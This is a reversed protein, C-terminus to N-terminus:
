APEEETSRLARGQRYAARSIALLAGGTLTSFLVFALLGGLRDIWEGKMYLYVPLGLLFCALLLACLAFFFYGGARARQREDPRAQIALAVSLACLMIGGPPWALALLAGFSFGVVAILSQRRRADPDWTAPAQEAAGILRQDSGCSACAGHERWCDPHQRALCDRCVHAQAREVAEHCFPCRQTSVQVDHLEATPRPRVGGTKSAAKSHPM